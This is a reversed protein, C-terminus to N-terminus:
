WFFLYTMVFVGLAIIVVVQPPVGDPHYHQDENVTQIDTDATSGADSITRNRRGRLESIPAISMSAMDHRLREIEAQAEKYKTLLEENLPNEVYVTEITSPAPVHSSPVPLPASEEHEDRIPQLYPRPSPPQHVSADLIPVQRSRPHSQLPVHFNEDHYEDQSFHDEVVQPIASPSPARPQPYVQSENVLIPVPPVPPVPPTFEPIM